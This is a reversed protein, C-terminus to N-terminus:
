IDWGMRARFLADLACKEFAEEVTAGNASIQRTVKKEKASLMITTTYGVDTLTIDATKLVAELEELTM